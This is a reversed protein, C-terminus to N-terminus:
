KGKDMNQLAAVIMQEVALEQDVSQLARGAEMSSYGLAMLAQAAEQVAGMGLVNGSGASAKPSFATMEDNGVKEKLELILREATKKGIGPVKSLVRADATVLAMALEQVSLGALVSMAAKPGVGSVTILRDYMAREDKRLFGYLTMADERVQLRTYIKATEGVAGIESLTRASVFLEYGVGHAGIVVTDATKEDITGEIFAYM